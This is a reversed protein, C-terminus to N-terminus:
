VYFYFYLLYLKSPYRRVVMDSSVLEPDLSYAKNVQEIVMKKLMGVTTGITATQSKKVAGSIKGLPDIWYGAVKTSPENPANLAM